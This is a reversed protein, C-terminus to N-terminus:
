EKKGQGTKAGKPKKGDKSDDSKESAFLQIIPPSGRNALGELKKVLADPRQALKKSLLRIERVRRQYLEFANSGGFTLVDGRQLPVVGRINVEGKRQDGPLTYEVKGKKNAEMSKIEVLKGSTPKYDESSGNRRLHDFNFVAALQKDAKEEQEKEDGVIEELKERDRNNTLQHHEQIMSQLRQAKIIYSSLMSTLSGGLLLKRSGVDSMDIAISQEAMKKVLDYQVKNPDLKAVMEHVKKFNDVKPQVASLVDQAQNTQMQYLSRHNSSTAGVYGFVAGLILM